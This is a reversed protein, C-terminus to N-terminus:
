VGKRTKQFMQIFNFLITGIAIVKNTVDAWKKTEHETEPPPSIRRNLQELAKSAQDGIDNTKEKLTEVLSDISETLRTVRNMLIKGAVLYIVLRILIAAAIVIVSIAVAWVISSPLDM